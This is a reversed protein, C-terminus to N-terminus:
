HFLSSDSFAQAVSRQLVLMSALLVAAEAGPHAYSVTPVTQLVQAQPCCFWGGRGADAVASSAHISRQMLEGSRHHRASKHVTEWLHYANCALIGSASASLLSCVPGCAEHDSLPSGSSMHLAWLTLWWSAM